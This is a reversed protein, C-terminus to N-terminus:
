VPWVRGLQLFRTLHLWDGNQSSNKHTLLQILSIGLSQLRYQIGLLPESVVMQWGVQSKVLSKCLKLKFVTPNEENHEIIFTKSFWVKVSNWISLLQTTMNEHNWLFWNNFFIFYQYFIRLFVYADSWIYMWPLTFTLMHTM